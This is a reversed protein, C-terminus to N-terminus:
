NGGKLNGAVERADSLLEAYLDSEVGKAEEAPDDGMEADGRGASLLDVADRLGKIEDVLSQLAERTEVPGEVVPDSGDGDEDGDGEDTAKDGDDDGEALAARIKDALSSLAGAVEMMLKKHGAKDEDGTKEPEKSQEPALLEDVEEDTLERFEPPEKDPFRRIERALHDFVGEREGDPIDVGGRAGLLAGMAARAGRLHHKLEGDVVDHHPLKFGTLKREAIADPERWAFGRALKKFDIDDADPGGAWARLRKVAATGDWSAGEDVLKLDGHSAYGIVTKDKLAKLGAAYDDMVSTEIGKSLRVANPNAPVPVLSVELLENDLFKRKPKKRRRHGGKGNGEPADEDDDQGVNETEHPIFGVSTTNLFGSEALRFITDAFAYTEKPAFEVEMVLRKKDDVGISTARGVPPAFYDHGFLVVPNKKFNDLDWGEQVIVDGARDVSEDSAVFRLTRDKGEVKTVKNTFVARIREM